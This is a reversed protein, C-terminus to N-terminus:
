KRRKKQATKQAISDNICKLELRLKYHEDRSAKHYRLYILLVRVSAVFCIGCICILGIIWAWFPMQGYNSYFFVCCSLLLALIAIAIGAATGVKENEIRYLAEEKEFKERELTEIGVAKCRKEMNKVIADYDEKSKYASQEM